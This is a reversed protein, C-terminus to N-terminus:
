KKKKDNQSKKIKIIFESGQGPSSKVYIKGNHAEIIEKVIALGLGAGPRERTLEDGVRYFKEFINKQENEPIGIGYDKVIIEVNENDERTIIDITSKADSYKIANDILNFLVREIAHQDGMIAIESHSNVNFKIEPNSLSYTKVVKDIIKNVSIKNFVYRRKKGSNFV